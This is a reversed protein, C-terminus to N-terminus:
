HRQLEADWAETAGCGVSEAGGFSMMEESLEHDETIGRFLIRAEDSSCRFITLTRCTNTFATVNGVRSGLITEMRTSTREPGSLTRPITIAVPRQNCLYITRRLSANDVDDELPKYLIEMQEM